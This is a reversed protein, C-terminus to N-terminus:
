NDRNEKGKQGWLKPPKGQISKTYMPIGKV